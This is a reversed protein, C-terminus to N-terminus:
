LFSTEGIKHAVQQHSELKRGVKLTWAKLLQRTQLARSLVKWAVTIRKIELNPTTWSSDVRRHCIIGSQVLFPASFIVIVTFRFFNCVLFSLFANFGRNELDGLAPIHSIPVFQLLKSFPGVILQWTKMKRKNQELPEVTCARLSGGAKTISIKYNDLWHLRATFCEHNGTGICM